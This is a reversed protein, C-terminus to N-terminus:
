HCIWTNSGSPLFLMWSRATSRRPPVLPAPRAQGKAGLPNHQTPTITNSVRFSPLDTAVPIHYTVLNSTLPYGNEDFRAHEWLAQGAGQAIGGHQQGQFLMPNVISGCDDVAAHALLRAWGTETDVEVVAMHAGFPYTAKAQKFDMESSLTRGGLANAATALDAWAIASDPSGAM